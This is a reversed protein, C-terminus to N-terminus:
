PAPPIVTWTHEGTSVRIWYGWGASLATLAGPIGASRDFLRWPSGADAAHYAYVLTFDAGLGHDQLAGPLAMPSASPFGVLNWGPYVAIDTAAPVDGAVTLTRPATLRIWFGMTHDIQQLTNAYAPATADFKRWRQAAGDWAYVLDFVGDLSALVAAVSTDAPMVDFSILNWGAELAIARQAPLVHVSATDEVVSGDDDVVRFTVNYDGAALWVVSVVAGTHTVGDVVWAYDCVDTPACVATGALTISQGATVTYPGGASV